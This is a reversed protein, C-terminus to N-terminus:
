RWALLFVDKGSHEAAGWAEPGHASDALVPRVWRGGHLVRGRPSGQRQKCVQPSLPRVVKCVAQGMPLEGHASSRQRQSEARDELCEGLGPEGQAKGLSDEPATERVM